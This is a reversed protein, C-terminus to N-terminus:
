HRYAVTLDDVRRVGPMRQCIDAMPTEKFRVAIEVPSTTKLPPISARQDWAAKVDRTIAAHVDELHYLHSALRTIGEKTVTYGIKAELEAVEEKLQSDGSVHIVPVGHHGALLGNLGTEGVLVGNVLVQTIHGSYTHALVGKARGWLSHYGVFVAADFSSDLGEVMSDIKTGGSILSVGLPLQEVRLNTMNWHSDNVVIEEVGAAQLGQIAALLDDTMYRQADAYFKGAPNCFEHNPIGSCGEMDCSIYVKSM